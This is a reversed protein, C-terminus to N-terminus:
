EELSTQEYGTAYVIEGEYVNYIDQNAPTAGISMGNEYFNKLDIKFTFGDGNNVTEFEICRHPEENLYIDITLLQEDGEITLIKSEEDFTVSEFPSFKHIIQCQVQNSPLSDEYYDLDSCAIVYFVRDGGTLSSIDLSTEETEIADLGSVHVIYIDANEVEDWVLLNENEESASLTTRKLYTFITWEISPSYETNNGSNESLYCVSIQYKGGLELGNELLEDVTLTNSESEIITEEGENDVFRFRYQLYNDNMDATLYVNEGDFHVEVSSPSSTNYNLLFATVVGGIVILGIIVSLLIYLLQKKNKKGKQANKTEKVM